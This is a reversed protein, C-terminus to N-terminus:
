DEYSLIVEAPPTKQLYAAQPCSPFSTFGSLIKKHLVGWRRNKKEPAPHHIIGATDALVLRDSDFDM